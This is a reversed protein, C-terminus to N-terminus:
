DDYKEMMAVKNEVIIPLNQKDRMGQLAKSVYTESKIMGYDEKLSVIIDNFSISDYTNLMELIAGQGNNLVYGYENKFEDSAEKFLSKVSFLDKDEEPLDENLYSTIYSSDEKCIKKFIEGTDKELYSSILSALKKKKVVLGLKKYLAIGIQTLSVYTRTYKLVSVVDEITIDNGFVKQKVYSYLHERLNHPNKEVTVLNNEILFKICMNMGGETMVSGYKRYVGAILEKAKLPRNAYKLLVMLKETNSLDIESSVEEPLDSVDFLDFIDSKM